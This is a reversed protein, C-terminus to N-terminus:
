RVVHMSNSNNKLDDVANQVIIFGIIGFVIAICGLIVGATAMGKGTIGYRKARNRAAIGFVIALVGGILAPISLIPILGCLVGIVGGVLAIVAFGNSPPPQGVVQAPATVTSPSAVADPAALTPPDTGQIGANSVHETWSAGDFYRVEHRGTPDAHWGATGNM